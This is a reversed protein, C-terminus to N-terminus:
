FPKRGIVLMERRTPDFTSHLLVFGQGGLDKKIENLLQETSERCYAFYHGGPRVLSKSNNYIPINKQTFDNMYLVFPFSERKFNSSLDTIDAMVFRNTDVRIINPHTYFGPFFCIGKDASLMLKEAEQLNPLALFPEMYKFHTGTHMFKQYNVAQALEQVSVLSFCPSPSGKVCSRFDHKYCPSCAVKPDLGIANKFYKMRVESPFPGYLGIVPKELAGAVQIMFSDPGVILNYRQALVMSQRVNFNTAVIIKPNGSKYWQGLLNHQESGIMVVRTNDEKALIDVITKLKEKPFNRLPASSEMQIGVVYDQDTIGLSLVTKKLWENEPASFFLKPKKEEAPIHTSDISFYSFFMDVAHTKQSEESSSEIIGQFQLHYDTDDLLSADFPMNYLENIEPVNELPEKCASAVRLFCTPYKKKLYRLVPLLFGGVDGIGGTRWTMLRKGALDEGKYPRYKQEIPYSMGFCDPKLSRYQGEIDEAMVFKHGAEFKQNGASFTKIIDVIRM